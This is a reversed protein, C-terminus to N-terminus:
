NRAAHAKVAIASARVKGIHIVTLTRPSGSLPTITAPYTPLRSMAPPNRAIPAQTEATVFLWTIANTMVAATHKMNVTLPEVSTRLKKEPQAGGTITSVTADKLKRVCKVDILRPTI